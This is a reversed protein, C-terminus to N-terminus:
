PTEGGAAAAAEDADSDAEDDAEIATRIRGDEGIVTLRERGSRWYSGDALERLRERSQWGARRPDSLVIPRILIVTERRERSRVERRFFLGLGPISGLIPTREINESVVERIMGGLVVAEGDHAVVITKTSSDSVADIALSRLEGSGDIYFFPASNPLVEQSQFDFGMTVTGDANIVPTIGITTGITRQQYVPQAQTAVPNDGGSTTGQQIGTLLAREEGVFFSAPANNACLLMPSASTEVRNDRQLLQMQADIVDNLFGFAVTNTNLTPQNPLALDVSEGESNTDAYNFDFFSEFGDGLTMNLVKVELLVQPTPTDLARVLAEIQRLLAQDVCRVALVNNRPFVTMVAVPGRALGAARSVPLRGNAAVDILQAFREHLRKLDLMRGDYARENGNADQDDEDEEDDEEDSAEGLGSELDGDGFYGYQTKEQVGLHVVRGVFLDAITTAIGGAPANNVAFLKIQEDPYLELEALYQERSMIRVVGDAERYGYGHLRCLTDLLVRLSVAHLRLQVAEEAIAPSCVVNVGRQSLMDVLRGMPVANAVFSEIPIAALADITSRDAAELREALLSEPLQSLDTVTTGGAVEFVPEVDIVREVERTGRGGCASLCCLLLAAGLPHRAEIM